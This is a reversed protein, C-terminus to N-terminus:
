FFYGDERYLYALTRGYKDIRNAPDFELYVKKGDLLEKAKNSVEVGFCQVPKRPDKTEPTDIGILKLTGLESVKVTDGDVVSIIDFLNQDKTTAGLNTIALNSKKASEM